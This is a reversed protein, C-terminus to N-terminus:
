RQALQSVGRCFLHFPDVPRPWAGWLHLVLYSTAAGVLAPHRVSATRFQASLTEAGTVAAWMDYGVVVAAVLAWAPPSAPSLNPGSRGGALM